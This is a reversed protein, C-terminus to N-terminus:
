KNQLLKGPPDMRRRSYRDLMTKSFLRAFPYYEIDFHKSRYYYRKLEAPKGFMIEDYGLKYFYTLQQFSDNLIVLGKGYPTQPDYSYRTSDTLKSQYKAQSLPYGYYAIVYDNSSSNIIPHAVVSGDENLLIGDFKKAKILDTNTDIYYYVPCYDFNNHFDLHIRRIVENADNQVEQLSKTDRAKKMASVRNQESRLQVLVAVPYEKKLTDEAKCPKSASLVMMIIGALLTIKAM